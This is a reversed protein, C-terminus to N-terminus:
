THSKFSTHIEGQSREDLIELLEGARCDWTHSSRAKQWGRDAIDRLRKEDGLLSSVLAPLEELHALDYFLVEAGEEFESEMYPNRETVVAAKQLMSNLIRETVANKHWSMINLAIKSQQWVLLCEEATLNREHWIFNPNHRLQSGSWSEGFVDVKIGAEVLTRLIKTRYRYMMFLTVQRVGHLQQLFEAESLRLGQHELALSLLKEATLHPYKRMMLCYRNVLFRQERSMGSLSERVQKSNDYDSGIFVIDYVREKEDFERIMGGPPFFLAKLPYHKEAFEAYDKDVMFLTLHKPTERFHRDVAVPHDFIYNYKPGTIKDHLFGQGHELKVSFMWSQFGIVAQFSRGIFRYSERFNEKAIDFYEVLYGRRRLADGLEQAFVCLIHYCVADGTYLLFPQSGLYLHRYADSQKLMDSLFEVIEAHCGLIEAQGLLSEAASDFLQQELLIKKYRSIVYCDTKLGALDLEEERSALVFDGERDEPLQGTLYVPFAEALRLLLEYARKGPLRRNLTSVKKFCERPVYITGHILTEDLLIDLFSIEATEERNEQYILIGDGCATKEMSEREQGQGSEEFLM